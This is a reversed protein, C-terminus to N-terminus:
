VKAAMKIRINLKKIVSAIAIGGFLTEAQVIRTFSFGANRCENVAANADFSFVSIAFQDYARNLRDVVGNQLDGHSDATACFDYAIVCDQDIRGLM